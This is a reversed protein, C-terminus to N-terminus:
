LKRSNATQKLHETKESGDIYFGVQVFGGKSKKVFITQIELSRKPVNSYEAFAWDGGDRIYCDQLSFDM